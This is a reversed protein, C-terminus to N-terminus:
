PQDWISMYKRKTKNSYGDNFQVVELTKNVNIDPSIGYALADIQDDHPLTENEMLAHKGDARFKECEEIFKAVWPAKEPIHVFNNTIQGLGGNLRQFKDRIPTLEFIPIGKRKLRPILGLGSSAREINIGKINFITNQLYKLGNWYSWQDIILQELDPELLKVREIHIIYTNNNQTSKAMLMLVSYDSSTKITSASDLIFYAYSFFGLLEMTKQLDYRPFMSRNLVVGLSSYSVNWNGDLWQARRVPDMSNLSAKYGPNQTILIKNDNLSAHIFTVSKPLIDPYDEDILDEKNDAWIYEDSRKVFWRIHGSREPIAFGSDEDIWYSLFKRLWSDRDPNCTARIYSQIGCDTRARALAYFFQQETFHTLEDFCFLAAQPGQWSEFNTDQDNFHQFYIKAGSPFLWMKDKLNPKGDLTSYIRSAFGWLGGAKTLDVSKTRLFVCEFKPLHINYLPALLLAFSKGGGAAGGYIAIDATSSLFQSQKEQPRIIDKTDNM